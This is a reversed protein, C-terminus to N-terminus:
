AQYGPLSGYRSFHEERSMSKGRVWYEVRNGNKYAPGLVNHLEDLLYHVSYLDDPHTNYAAPAGVRHRLGYEYHVMSSGVCDNSVIAPYDGMRHIKGAWWYEFREGGAIKTSYAPLYPHHLRGNCKRTIDVPTTTTEILSLMYNLAYKALLDYWERNLRILVGFAGSSKMAIVPWLEEPLRPLGLFGLFESYLSLQSNDSSADM